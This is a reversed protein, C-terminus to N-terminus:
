EFIIPSFYQPQHFSLREGIPSWQGYNPHTTDGAIKYFNARWVDGSKPAIKGFVSELVAFPIFSEIFWTVPGELEPDTTPPMSARARIQKGIEGMLARGFGPPADPPIPASGPPPPIKVLYAGGCNTEINIYSKAPDPEVFFEVASDNYVDAQYQTRTCHVYRDEVRWLLFFGKDDYLVKCQTRPKHDSGLSHWHAVELTDAKQWYPGNWLAEWDTSSPPPADARRITYELTM